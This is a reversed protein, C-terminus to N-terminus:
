ANIQRLLKDLVSIKAAVGILREALGEVETTKGRRIALSLDPGIDDRQQRLPILEDVIMEIIDERSTQAPRPEDEINIRPWTWHWIRKGKHTVCPLHGGRKQVLKDAAARLDIDTPDEPVEMRVSTSTCGVGYGGEFDETTYTVYIEKTDM